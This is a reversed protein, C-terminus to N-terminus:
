RWLSCQLLANLMFSSSCTEVNLHKKYVQLYIDAKEAFTAAIQAISLLQAFWARSNRATEFNFSYTYSLREPTTEDKSSLYDQM